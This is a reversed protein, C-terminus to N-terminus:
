DKGIKLCYIPILQLNTSFNPFHLFTLACMDCSPDLSDLM